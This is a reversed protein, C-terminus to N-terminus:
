RQGFGGGSGQKASPGAIACRQRIKNILECAEAEGTYAGFSITRAGYDFAIRSPQRSLGRQFRLNGMERVQYTRSLGLGFIKRTRTLTESNVLIIESGGVSDLVVYSAWLEGFLWVATFLDFHNIRTRWSHMGSFTWFALWVVLFLISWDRKPPFSIRVGDAEDWVTTRPRFLTMM